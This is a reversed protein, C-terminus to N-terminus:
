RGPNTPNAPIGAKGYAAEMDVPILRWTPASRLDMSWTAPSVSGDTRAPGTWLPLRATRLDAVAQADRWARGDPDAWLREPSALATGAMPTHMQGDYWTACLVSSGTPRIEFRGSGKVTHGIQTLVGRVLPISPSEQPRTSPKTVRADEVFGAHAVKANAAPTGLENQRGSVVAVLPSPNGPFTNPATRAVLVAASIALLMSAAAALRGITVIRRRPAGAFKASRELRDMISGSFDPGRAHRGLEADLEEMAALEERFKKSSVLAARFRPSRRSLEGDLYANIVDSSGLEKFGFRTYDACEHNANNEPLESRWEPADDRSWPDRGFPGQPVSGDHRGDRAM